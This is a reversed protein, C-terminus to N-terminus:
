DFYSFRLFKLNLPFIANSLLLHTLLNTTERCTFSWPWQCRFHLFQDQRM